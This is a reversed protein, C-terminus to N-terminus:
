KNIQSKLKNKIRALRTGINTVTFGTITAIEDYNKGELHLLIIGKEVISLKKIHAYLLTIREEMATDVQDIKNLLFNDISVRTGKRKEKKLNSIATNLAVRYMWTSIKSTAKFSPYSKWLQYVIDQYVDKQDETSNTYLRAVKYIIGENEKIARIFERKTYM